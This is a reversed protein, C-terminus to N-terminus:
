TRVFTTFRDSLRMGLSQIIAHEFKRICITALSYSGYSLAMEAPGDKDTFVVVTIQTRRDATEDGISEANGIYRIKEDLEEIQLGTDANAEYLREENTGYISLFNQLTELTTHEGKLSESYSRLIRLEGKFRDQKAVLAARERKLKKLEPSEVRSLVAPPKYIVDFITANGTGEARTSDDLLCNPL